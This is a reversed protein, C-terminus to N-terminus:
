VSNLRNILTEKLEEVSVPKKFFEIGSPIGGRELISENSLGSIVIIQDSSLQESKDLSRIMQLGDMGPMYIDSILVDPPTQGIELLGEFGDQKIIVDIEKGWSNIVAEYFKAVTPNDEVILVRKNNSKRAVTPTHQKDVHKQVSDAM